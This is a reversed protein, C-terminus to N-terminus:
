VADVERRRESPPTWGIEEFMYPEFKDKGDKIAISIALALIRRIEGTLGESMQHLSITFDANSFFEKHDIGMSKALRSIFLIFGKNYRWRVLSRGEFRNGNQQDTQIARMVEITGICVIPIHLENSLFKLTQLFVEQRKRPGSLINHVEDLMLMRTGSRPMVELLQALRRNITGTPPTFVDLERLILWLLTKVDGEPPTQVYVVPVKDEQNADEAHNKNMRDRFTRALMTKGSNTDGYIMLNQPRSSQERFLLEKLLILIKYARGYPVWTECWPTREAPLELEFQRMTDVIPNTM